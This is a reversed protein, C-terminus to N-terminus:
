KCHIHLSYDALVCSPLHSYCQHIYMNIFMFLGNWEWHFTASHKPAPCVDVSHTDDVTERERTLGSLVAYVLLWCTSFVSIMMGNLSLWCNYGKCNCGM